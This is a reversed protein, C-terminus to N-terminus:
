SRLFLLTGIRLYAEGKKAHYGSRKDGTADNKRSNSSSPFLVQQKNPSAYSRPSPPPVNQLDDDLIKHKAITSANMKTDSTVYGDDDFWVM